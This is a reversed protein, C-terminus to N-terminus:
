MTRGLLSVIDIIFGMSEVRQSTRKFVNGPKSAFDGEDLTGIIISEKFYVHLFGWRSDDVNPLALLPKFSIRPFTVTPRRGTFRRDSLPDRSTFWLAGAGAGIEVLNHIWVSSGVESFIIDVPYFRSDDDAHLFRVDFFMCKASRYPNQPVTFKPYLAFDKTKLTETTRVIDQTLKTTTTTQTFKRVLRPTTVTSPVVIDAPRVVTTTPPEIPSRALADLIDKPLSFLDTAAIQQRESERRNPVPNEPAERERELTEVSLSNLPQDLLRITRAKGGQTLTFQTRSTESSDITRCSFNVMFNGRTSSPGPGNLEELWDWLGAEARGVGFLCVLLVLAALRIAPRM